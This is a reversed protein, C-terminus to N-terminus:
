KNIEDWYFSILKEYPQRKDHQYLKSNLIDIKTHKEYAIDDCIEFKDLADIYSGFYKEVIVPTGQIEDIIQERIFHIICKLIAKDPVDDKFFLCDFFLRGTRGQSCSEM